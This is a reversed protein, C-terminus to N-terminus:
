RQKDSLIAKMNEFEYSVEESIDDFGGVIM